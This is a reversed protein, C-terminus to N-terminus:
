LTAVALRGKGHGGCGVGVGQEAAGAQADRAQRQAGHGEAGFVAPAAVAGRRARQKVVVQGRAAIEDVGGVDVGVARGLTPQALEHGLGPHAVAHHQGGLVGVIGLVLRGVGVGGAVAALVQHARDVGRELAQAGVPDVEVVQVGASSTSRV